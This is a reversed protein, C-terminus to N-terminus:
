VAEAVDSGPQYRAVSFALILPIDIAYVALMSTTLILTSGRVGDVVFIYELMGAIVIYALLAWRGVTFFTSWSFGNLRSLLAAAAAVLVLSLILLLVAPLLPVSQPLHGAIYIGGVIVSAMSAAALPVIPPRQPEEVM